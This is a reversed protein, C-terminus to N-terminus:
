ARGHGCASVPITNCSRETSQCLAKQIASVAPTTVMGGVSTRVSIQMQGNRHQSVRRELEVWSVQVVNATFKQPYGIAFLWFCDFSGALAQQLQFWVDLLAMNM